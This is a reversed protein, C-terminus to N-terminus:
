VAVPEMATPWHGRDRMKCFTTAVLYCLCFREAPSVSLTRLFSYYMNLLVRYTQFNESKFFAADASDLISTLTDGKEIKRMPLGAEAFAERFEGDEPLSDPFATPNYDFWSKDFGIVRQIQAKSDALVDEWADMIEIVQAAAAESRAALEPRGQVAEELQESWTESLREYHRRLHGTRDFNAFFFDAHAQLSLYGRSLGEPEYQDAARALMAIQVITAISVDAAKLAALRFLIPSSRDFFRSYSDLLAEHGDVLRPPRDEVLEATNNPRLPLYPGSIGELAGVKRSLMEYGDAELQTTSPHEKLWNQILKLQPSVDVEAKGAVCLELHPGHLWGTRIITVAEPHKARIDEVSERVPGIILPLRNKEYYDIRITSM